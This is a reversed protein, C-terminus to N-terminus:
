LVYRLFSVFQSYNSVLRYYDIYSWIASNYSTIIQHHNLALWMCKPNPRGKSIFGEKTLKRRILLKPVEIHVAFGQRQKIFKKGVVGSVSKVVKEVIKYTCVYSRFINLDLFPVKKKFLNVLKTKDV